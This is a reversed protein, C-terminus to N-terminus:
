RRTLTVLMDNRAAPLAIELNHLSAEIYTIGMMRLNSGPVSGGPRHRAIAMAIVHRNFTFARRGTFVPM